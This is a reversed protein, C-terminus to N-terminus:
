VYLYHRARNILCDTKSRVSSGQESELVSTMKNPGGLTVECICFFGPLLLMLYEAYFTPMIKSELSHKSFCIVGYVKQKNKCLLFILLTLTKTEKESKSFTWSKTEEQKVIAAGWFRGWITWFAADLSSVFQVLLPWMVGTKAENCQIETM